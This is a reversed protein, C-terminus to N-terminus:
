KALPCLQDQGENIHTRQFKAAEGLKLSRFAAEEIPSMPSLKDQAREQNRQAVMENLRDAGLAYRNLWATYSTQGDLKVGLTNDSAETCFGAVVTTTGLRITDKAFAPAASFLISLGTIISAVTRM